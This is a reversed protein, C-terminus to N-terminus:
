GVRTEIARDLCSGAGIEVDKEIVVNGISNVRVL